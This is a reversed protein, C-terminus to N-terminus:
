VSGHIFLNSRAKSITQIMALVLRALITRVGLRTSITGAGNEWVHDIHEPATGEHMAAAASRTVLKAVLSKVRISITLLLLMYWVAARYSVAM